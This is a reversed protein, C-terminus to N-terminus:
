RGPTGGGPGGGRPRARRSPSPRRRRSRAGSRASARSGAPRRRRADARSGSRRSRAARSPRPPASPRPRRAGVDDVHVEAAGDALHRLRAGARVQELVGIEGAPDGLRDRVGDRHRQGHLHPAADLVARAGAELEARPEDVGARRRQRQMRARRLLHVRAVGIVRERRLEDLEDVHRHDSRAVDRRARLRSATSAAVPALATMTPRPACPLGHAIRSITNPSVSCGDRSSTAASSIWKM